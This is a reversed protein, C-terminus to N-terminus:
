RELIFARNFLGLSEVHQFWKVSTNSCTPFHQIFNSKLRVKTGVDDLMERTKKFLLDTLPFVIEDGVRKLISGGDM